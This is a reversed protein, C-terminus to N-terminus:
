SVTPTYTIRSEESAARVEHEQQATAAMQVVLAVALPHNARRGLEELADAEDETEIVQREYSDRTEDVPRRRVEREAHRTVGGVVLQLTQVRGELSHRLLHVDM